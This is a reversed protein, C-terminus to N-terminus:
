IILNYFIKDIVHTVKITVNYSRSTFDSVYMISIFVPGSLNYFLRENQNIQKQYGRNWRPHTLRTLDSYEGIGKRRNYGQGSEVSAPLEQGEFDTRQQTILGSKKDTVYVDTTHTLPNYRSNYSSNRTRQQQTICALLLEKTSCRVQANIKKRPPYIFNYTFM